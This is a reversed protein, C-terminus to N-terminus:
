SPTAVANLWSVFPDSNDRKEREARGRLPSKTVRAALMSSRAAQLLPPPLELALALAAALQTFGSALPTTFTLALSIAKSVLQM